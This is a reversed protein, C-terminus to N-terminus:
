PMALCVHYELLSKIGVLTGLYELLKGLVTMSSWKLGCSAFYRRPRGGVEADLNFDLRCM